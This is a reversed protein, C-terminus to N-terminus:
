NIHMRDFLESNMDITFNDVRDKVYQEFEETILIDSIWNRVEELEM